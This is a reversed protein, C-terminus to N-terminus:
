TFITLERNVLDQTHTWEYKEAVFLRDFLPTFPSIFFLIWIAASQIYYFNSAVFLFLGIAAAWVIRAKKHNPTTMPDTIMFFAFLLLTGNSM